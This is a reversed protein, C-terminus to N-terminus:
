LKCRANEATHMCHVSKVYLTQHTRHGVEPVVSHQANTELKRMGICNAPMIRKLTFTFASAASTRQMRRTCAIALWPAVSLVATGHEVHM